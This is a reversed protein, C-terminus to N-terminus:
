IEWSEAAYEKLGALRKTLVRLTSEYEMAILVAEPNKNETAVTTVDNVFDGRMSLFEIIVKIDKVLQKDHQRRKKHASILDGRNMEYVSRGEKEVSDEAQRKKKSGDVSGGANIMDDDSDDNYDSM